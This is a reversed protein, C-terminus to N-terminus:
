VAVKRAMGESSFVAVVFLPRPHESLHLPAASGPEVGLHCHWRTCMVVGRFQRWQQFQTNHLWSAHLMTIKCSIVHSTFLPWSQRLFFYFYFFSGRGGLVLCNLFDRLLVEWDMDWSSFKLFLISLNLVYKGVGGLCMKPYVQHYKGSSLLVGKELLQGRAESLPWCYPIVSLLAIKCHWFIYKAKKKFYTCVFVALLM